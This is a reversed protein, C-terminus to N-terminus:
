KVEMRQNLTEFSTGIKSGNPLEFYIIRHMRNSYFNIATYVYEYINNNGLIFDSLKMEGSALIGDKTVNYVIVKDNPTSGIFDVINKMRRFFELNSELM